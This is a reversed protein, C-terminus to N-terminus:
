HNEMLLELALVILAIQTCGPRGDYEVGIAVYADHWFAHDVIM